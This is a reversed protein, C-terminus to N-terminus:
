NRRIKNLLDHADVSRLRPLIYKEYHERDFESLLMIKHTDLERYAVRSLQDVKILGYPYGPFSLDKSNSALNSIIREREEQTLEQSQKIYIDFRFPYYSNRHLKVFYLDAQNDAETIQYIPHYYWESEKYINSGILGLVTVLSDGKKTLLRCTKSLGSVIVGKTLAVQYLQDALKIEGKYSTQLSGDRVFIEGEELENNILEKGYSWEAFRRAISGFREIKVIFKGRRISGDKSNITIDAKPLYKSHNQNRPFFKTRFELSGDDKPTLITGTYFEVVNPMNNLPFPESAQFIAGAVRHFSINFDASILIPAHGGDVFGIKLYENCPPITFIREPTIPFPKQDPGVVYPADGEFLGKKFSQIFEVCSQYSKEQEDNEFEFVYEQDKDKNNM